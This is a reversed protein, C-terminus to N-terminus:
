WSTLHSSKLFFELNHGQCLSHCFSSICFPEGIILKGELVREGLKAEQPMKKNMDMTGFNLRAIDERGLLLAGFLISM